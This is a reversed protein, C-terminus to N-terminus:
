KKLVVFRNGKRRASLCCIRRARDIRDAIAKKFEEVTAVAQKGVKKIVMGDSLGHEAALGDPDVNTIVVGEVGKYGLQEAEAAKLDAVELGLEKSTFSRPDSPDRALRRRQSNRVRPEEPM